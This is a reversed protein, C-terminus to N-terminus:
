RGLPTLLVKLQALRSRHTLTMTIARRKGGAITVRRRALTQHKGTRRRIRILSRCPSHGRCILWLRVHRHGRLLRAQAITLGLPRTVRPPASPTPQPPPAATSPAPPPTPPVGGGASPPPAALANKFASWGPKASYDFRLLGMYNEWNNADIGPDRLTYIIEAAVYPWAAAANFADTLRSAQEPESVCWWFLGAPCTPWGFETLWLPKDGDGHSVMEDHVWPVGQAFTYKPGYTPGTPPDYPHISIGDFSGHIGNAYLSDLFDRDSWLLAGGLVPLDPAVRKIAPYAAKLLHGYDSAPASSQWFTANNPENWIEVAALNPKWRGAIYAAADAYDSARLPPYVTVGRDRWGASCNQRVDPPASSAWCPTSQVIAIVKLGRRAAQDLYADVQAVYASDYQGKGGPELDAWAIDIRVANAGAQQNLDLDKRGIEPGYGFANLTTGRWVAAAAPAAGLLGMWLAAAVLVGASRARGPTMARLAM